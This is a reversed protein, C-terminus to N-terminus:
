DWFISMDEEEVLDLRRPLELSQESSESLTHQKLTYSSM